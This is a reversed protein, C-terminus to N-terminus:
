TTPTRATEAQQSARRFFHRLRDDWGQIPTDAELLETKQYAAARSYIGLCERWLGESKVNFGHIQPFVAQEFRTRETAEHRNHRWQMMQGYNASANKGDPSNLLERLDARRVVFTQLSSYLTSLREVETTSLAKALLRAQSTWMLFSFEPMPELALRQRKDFDGEDQSYGLGVLVGVGPINVEEKFVKTWLDVLAVINQKSELRLLERVGQREQAESRREQFWTTWANLGWGLIAGVLGILGTLLADSM